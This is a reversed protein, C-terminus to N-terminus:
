LAAAIVGHVKIYLKKASEGNSLIIQESISPLGFSQDINAEHENVSEELNVICYTRDTLFM